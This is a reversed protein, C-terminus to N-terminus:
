CQFCIKVVRRTEGVPQDLELEADRCCRALWRVLFFVVRHIDLEFRNTNLIKTQLTGNRRITFPITDPLHFLVFTLFYKTLGTESSTGMDTQNDVSIRQFQHFFLPGSAMKPM